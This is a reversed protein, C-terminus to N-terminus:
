GRLANALLWAPLALEILYTLTAGGFAGSRFFGLTGAAAIARAVLIASGLAVIAGRPTGQLELLVLLLVMLIVHEVALGHARSARRLAENGGDGAYIRTRQRLLSTNLGLGLVLLGSLAAFVTSAIPPSAAFSHLNM